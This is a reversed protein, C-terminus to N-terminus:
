VNSIAITPQCMLIIFVQFLFLHNACVICVGGWWIGDVSTRIEMPIHHALPRCPFEGKIFMLIKVIIIFLINM